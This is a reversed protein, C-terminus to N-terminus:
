AISMFKGDVSDPVWVLLLQSCLVNKFGHM